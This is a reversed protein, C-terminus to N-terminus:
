VKVSYWHKRRSSNVNTKEKKNTQNCIGKRQQNGVLWGVLGDMWNIDNVWEHWWRIWFAPVWRKECWLPLVIVLDYVAVMKLFLESLRSPCSKWSTHRNITKQLKIWPMTNVFLIQPLWSAIKFVLVPEVKTFRQKTVIYSAKIQTLDTTSEMHWSSLSLGPEFKRRITIRNSNQRWLSYNVDRNVRASSRRFMRQTPLETVDFIQKANAPLIFWAWNPQYKRCISRAFCIKYVCLETKAAFTEPFTAWLAVTGFNNTVFQHRRLEYQTRMRLFYSWADLGNAVYCLHDYM